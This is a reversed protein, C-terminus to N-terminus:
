RGTRFYVIILIGVIFVIGIWLNSNDKKETLKNKTNIDKKLEIIKTNEEIKFDEFKTKDYKISVNFYEKGDIIMPKLPDFPVIEGIDNLRINQSLIRSNEVSLSDSKINVKSLNTKRSGCSALILLLLLYKM